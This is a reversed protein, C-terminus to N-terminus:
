IRANVHVNYGQATAKRKPTCRKSARRGGLCQIGGGLQASFTARGSKGVSAAHGTSAREEVHQDREEAAPEEDDVRAQRSPVKCVRSSRQPVRILRRVLHDTLVPRRFEGEPIVARQVVPGRSLSVRRLHPVRHAVCREGVSTYRFGASRTVDLGDPRRFGVQIEGTQVLQVGDDVAEEDELRIPGEGAELFGQDEAIQEAAVFAEGRELALDLVACEFSPHELFPLRWERLFPLHPGGHRVEEPLVEGSEVARRRNQQEAIDVLDRRALRRGQKLGAREVSGKVEPELRIEVRELELFAALRCTPPCFGNLPGFASVPGVFEVLLAGQKVRGCHRLQDSYEAAVALYRLADQCIGSPMARSGSM